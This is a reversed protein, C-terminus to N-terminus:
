QENIKEGIIKEIYRELRDFKSGFRKGQGAVKETLTERAHHSDQIHLDLRKDMQSFSAMLSDKVNDIAAYIKAKENAAWWIGCILAPIQMLMFDVISQKNM